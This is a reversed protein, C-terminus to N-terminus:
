FKQNFTSFIRNFCLVLLYIKLRIKKFNLRNSFFLFSWVIQMDPAKAM